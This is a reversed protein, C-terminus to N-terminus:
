LHGNELEKDIMRVVDPWNSSIVMLTSYVGQMMDSRCDEIERVNDFDGDNIGIQIRREVEELINSVDKVTIEVKTSQTTM